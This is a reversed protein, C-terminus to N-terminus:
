NGYFDEVKDKVYTGLNQVVSTQVTSQIDEIFETLDIKSFDLKQFEEPTFGRCEPDEAKGWSIDLQERGQEQIVRALTSNFVCYSDSKQICGILPIKKSCFKGIYHTHKKKRKEALLKENEKCAILGAFVKDKDCCGGGTLGFFIDWSRCKNSKGNFIYIQGSCSGDEEWGDNDKDSSGVETDLNEIDDNGWCPFPSCQWKEDVWVAPREENYKCLFKKRKCNNTPVTSSNCSDGVGDGDTDILDETNEPNCDGGKDQPVYNYGQTTEESNCKWEYYTYEKTKSCAKDGTLGTETYGTPCALTSVTCQGNVPTSGDSCTLKTIRKQWVDIKYPNYVSGILTFGQSTGNFAGRVYGWQTNSMSCFLGSVGGISPQEWNGSIVGLCQGTYTLQAEVTTLGGRKSTYDTTTGIGEVSYGDEYDWYESAESLASPCYDNGYTDLQCDLTEGLTVTDMTSDWIKTNCFKGTLEQAGADDSLPKCENLNEFEFVARYKVPNNYEDAHNGVDLWKGNAGSMAVWHEGLPSVMQKGDVVDYENVFNDPQQPYFNKYILSNGLVDKFRNSDYICNSSDFCYNQLQNPDYIGIWSVSGGGVLNQIFDNEAQSNPIALYGGNNEAIKKADDFTLKDISISYYHGNFLEFEKYDSCNMANLSNIFLIFLLLLKM